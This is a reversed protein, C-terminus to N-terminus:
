PVPAPPVIPGIVIHARSQEVGMSTTSVIDCVGPVAPPPRTQGTASLTLAMFQPSNSPDSLNMGAVPPSAPGLDTLEVLMDGEIPAPGLSGPTVPPGQDQPVLLDAAGNYLRVQENVGAYTVRMCTANDVDGYHKCAQDKGSAMMEAYGQRRDTALDGAVALVAYDTVYHTQTMQRGFGSSQVSLTAQRVAFLGLGSLLAIVLMVVFLAAGRARRRVRRM